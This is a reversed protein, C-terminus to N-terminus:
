RPTSRRSTRATPCSSWRAGAARPRPRSPTRSWRDALRHRSRRELGGAAVRRRGPPRPVRAGSRPRGLRGRGRRLRVGTAAGAAVSDKKETAAHRGPVALRLVDSRTGAYREALEGALAAVQPSLVPEASVVRRLPTLSGDHDTGAVRELVFGDVDRGAFRVKVRVGPQADDAMSAPVAYDFARDLHALPVDVLVRAVPDVEAVPEASAAAAKRTPRVRARVLGPLLEQQERPEDATRDPCPSM